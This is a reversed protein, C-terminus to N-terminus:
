EPFTNKTEIFLQECALFADVVQPDFHIARGAIIAKRALEHPMADECTPKMTIADYVDAVAMIRACMPIEAGKLGRPYGSGDWREHHAWAIDGAVRLFEAEPFSRLADDFIQWGKETHKKTEIWEADNLGDSKLLVLEPVGIKGIDHLPSTEFLLDPFHLPYQSGTDPDRLIQTALIKCYHRIRDIHLGSGGDKAEVARMMLFLVLKISQLAINREAVQMHALLVEPDFPKTIYDDAGLELGHLRDARDRKETLFIIPINNTKRDSRLRRAVEYGDIDPLRIDLIM